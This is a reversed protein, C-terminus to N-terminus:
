AVVGGEDVNAADDIDLQRDEVPDGSSGGHARASETTEPHLLRSCGPARVCARLSTRRARVQAQEM